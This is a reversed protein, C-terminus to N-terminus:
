TLIRINNFRDYLGNISNDLDDVIKELEVLRADFEDKPIAPKITNELYRSVERVVHEWSFMAGPPYERRVWEEFSM